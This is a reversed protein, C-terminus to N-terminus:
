MRSKSPSAQFVRLLQNLLLHKLRQLGGIDVIHLYLRDGVGDADAAAGEIDVVIGGIGDELINLVLVELAQLFGVGGEPAIGELLFVHCLGVGDQEVNEVIQLFVPVDGVSKPAGVALDHELEAAPLAQLLAQAGLRQHLSVIRLIGLKMYGIQDAPM